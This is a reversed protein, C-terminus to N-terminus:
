EVFYPVWVGGDPRAKITEALVWQGDQKVHSIVPALSWLAEMAASIHDAKANPMLLFGAHFIRSVVYFHRVTIPERSISHRIPAHVTKMHEALIAMDYARPGGWLQGLLLVVHRRIRGMNYSDFLPWVERNSRLRGYVFEGCQDIDAPGIESWASGKFEPDWTPSGATYGHPHETM